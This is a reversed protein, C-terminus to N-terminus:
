GHNLLQIKYYPDSIYNQLPRQIRILNYQFIDLTPELRLSRIQESRSIIPDAASYSEYRSTYRCGTLPSIPVVEFIKSVCPCWSCQNPCFLGLHLVNDGVIVVAKSIPNGHSPSSKDYSVDGFWCQILHELSQSIVRYSSFVTTIFM